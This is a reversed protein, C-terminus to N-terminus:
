ASFHTKTQVMVNLTVVMKRMVAVIAVKKPKGASVLRDYFGKFKPNYKCATLAGMYLTKRVNQRGYRISAKGIKQGSEKTIPAVGVLAAIEKKNAKGLEPLSTMLTLAITKGIGKMSQLLKYKEKLDTDTNIIGLIALEVQKLQKELTTIVSKLSKKIFANTAVGQRCIEQHHLSKLQELRAGLFELEEQKESPYDKIEAPNLFKGYEKLLRSDIKDTKALRGKAKAFAHVRNPHAIHVTVGNNILIRAFIKEYGGTSELVALISSKRRSKVFKEMLKSTQDVRFVQEGIAIDLWNKSVDIGWYEEFVTKM